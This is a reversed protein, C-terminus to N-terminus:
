SLSSAIAEACQVMDYGTSEVIMYRSSTPAGVKIRFWVEGSPFTRGGGEGKLLQKLLVHSPIDACHFDGALSAGM